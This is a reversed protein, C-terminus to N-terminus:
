EYSVTGECALEEAYAAIHLYENIRYPIGLRDLGAVLSLFVCEASAPLAEHVRQAMVVYHADCSCASDWCVRDQAGAPLEGHV